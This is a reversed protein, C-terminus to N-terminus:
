NLVRMTVNGLGEDTYGEYWNEEFMSACNEDNVLNTLKTKGTIASGMTTPNYKIALSNFGSTASDTFANTHIKSISYFFIKTNTTVYYISGEMVEYKVINNNDIIEGLNIKGSSYYAGATSIYRINFTNLLTDGEGSTEKSVYQILSVAHSEAKLESVQIMATIFYFGNEKLSSMDSSSYVRDEEDSAVNFYKLTETKFAYAGVSKLNSLALTFSTISTGEFASAGISELKCLSSDVNVLSVVNKFANNGIKKLSSPLSIYGLSSANKFANEKIESVVLTEGNIVVTNPIVVLKLGDKIELATAENYGIITATGFENKEAIYGCDVNYSYTLSLYANTSLKTTLDYEEGLNLISNIVIKNESLLTKLNTSNKSDIAELLEEITLSDNKSKTITGNFSSDILENSIVVSVVPTDSEGLFVVVGDLSASNYPEYMPSSIMGYEVGCYGYPDSTFAYISMGKPYENAKFSLNNTSQLNNYIAFAPTALVGKLKEDTSCEPNWLLSTTSYQFKAYQYNEISENLGVYEFTSPMNLYKITRNFYTGVQVGNVGEPITVTDSNNFDAVLLLKGNHKRSNDIKYIKDGDKYFDGVKATEKTNSFVFNSPIMSLNKVSSPILIDFNYSSGVNYSLYGNYSTLTDAFFSGIIVEVGEPITVSKLKNMNNFSNQILKVSSPIVIEEVSSANANLGQIMEIGEGIIIKKLNASNTIFQEPRIAEVHYSKVVGNEDPFSINSLISLVPADSITMETKTDDYTKADNGYQTLVLDGTTEDVQYKFFPSRWNVTITTSKTIAKTFDFANGESDTYSIDYKSMYSQLIKSNEVTDQSGDELALKNTKPTEYVTNPNVLVKYVDQYGDNFTIAAVSKAYLDNTLAQGDWKTSYNSNTYWGDFELGEGPNYIGNVVDILNETVVPDGNIHVNVEVPTFRAYVSISETLNENKFVDGSFDNNLYWNNFTYYKKTPNQPLEVKGDEVNVEQYLTWNNDSEVMFSVKAEKKNSCSALTLIALVAFAVFAFVQKLSKKIFM